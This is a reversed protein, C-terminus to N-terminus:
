VSSAWIFFAAIGLILMAGMLMPQFTKRLRYQDYDRLFTLRALTYFGWGGLRIGTESRRVFRATPEHM